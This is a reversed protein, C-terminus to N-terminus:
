AKSIEIIADVMKDLHQKTTYLHPTVRVGNIPEKEIAVTFINYDKYLKEALQSPKLGDVAINAIAATRSDEVPTNFTVGKLDKVKDVWYNKLHLLRERKRKSGITNHFRIAEPICLQVACPHTGQHELKRIDTRKQNVDGFLSWLKEIKDKKVWLMGAGLPACLWKHLSAAYYDCGLDSIKFDIHAFTHAGDVMAEVGKSHAMACIKKVPLLQGSTNILHTVLLVKTKPTIAEEYAKVIEEDSKPHLPIKITKLVIGDRNARQGFAELMSGYDQDTVIAEDGKKLPLGQIIINLSETTNRTLALEEADVKAFDALAQRVKEKDEFQQTRMYYSPSANIMKTYEVFASLVPLPQPSFYGNELNIFKKSQVYSMQVSEWFKNDDGTALQALEEISYPTEMDFNDIGFLTTPFVFGMAAMRKIFGRRNEAM